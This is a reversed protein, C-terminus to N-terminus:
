NAPGNPRANPQARITQGPRPRPRSAAELRDLIERARRQVYENSDNTLREAIARAEPSDALADLAEFRVDASSDDLALAELTPLPIDVGSNVAAYLASARVKGDEDNLAKLVAGQARPGERQVVSEIARTRVKPDPDALQHELEKTSAWMAPPIPALGRGQDKLYVWVAKLAAPREKEVGYFFFADQSRLIERLGEDLPLNQFQASCRQSGIGTGKVVAIPALSSIEDLVVDLPQDHVNASLLGDKFTIALPVTAPRGKASTPLQQRAQQAPSGPPIGVLVLIFISFFRSFPRVIIRM